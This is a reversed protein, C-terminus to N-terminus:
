FITIKKEDEEEYTMIEDFNIVFYHYVDGIFYEVFKIVDTGNLISVTNNSTLDLNVKKLEYYRSELCEGKLYEIMEKPLDLPPLTAKLIEKYVEGGRLGVGFTFIKKIREPLTYLDEFNSRFCIREKEDVIFVKRNDYDHIFKGSRVLFNDEVKKTLLSEHLLPFMKYNESDNKIDNLDTMNRCQYFKHETKEESAESGGYNQCLKVIKVGLGVFGFIIILFCLSAYLYFGANKARKSFREYTTLPANRQYRYQPREEEYKVNLIFPRAKEEVNKYSTVVM